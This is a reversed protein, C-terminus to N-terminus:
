SLAHFPSFTHPLTICDDMGRLQLIWSGASHSFWLILLSGTKHVQVQPIANMEAGYKYMVGFQPLLHYSYQLCQMQISPMKILSKLIVDWCASLQLEYLLLLVSASNFSEMICSLRQLSKELSPTFLLGYPQHRNQHWVTASMLCYLM